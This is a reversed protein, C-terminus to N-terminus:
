GRLVGGTHKNVAAVIKQSVAELAEDTLTADRPQLRVEIAISKQGDAMGKGSYEDFVHVGDILSKDAGAAARAIKEAPVGSDVVFAFDRSVAQFPSPKLLPRATGKRKPMPTFRM